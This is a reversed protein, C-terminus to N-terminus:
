PASLFRKSFSSGSTGQRPDVPTIGAKDLREQFEQKQKETLNDSHVLSWAKRSMIEEMDAKEAASMREYRDLAQSPYQINAFAAVRPAMGGQKEILGEHHTTAGTKPNVTDYGAEAKTLKDQERLADLDDQSIAGSRYRDILTQKTNSKGIRENVPVRKRLGPVGLEVSQGLREAFSGSPSRVVKKGTIPNTEDTAKAYEQMFGPITGRVLEGGAQAVGRSGEQGTFFRAPTEYFPVQEALGKGAAIGGEVTSDTRGKEAMGDMVRRATAALQGAELIPVHTLMKPIRHGFFMIEGPQPEKESRKDGKQYYGGFQQPHLFAYTMMALGVGGKKYARMINNAQEPTLNKVGGRIATEIAARPIGFTYNLTEGVVNVPVRTIPFIFRGAKALSKGGIGKRELSSMVDNFTDSILNRQQFRAREASNYAEMRAALQTGPETIDKGSKEYNRLVKVFARDFEAQRPYEKLAGHIRGPIGLVGGSSMEKDISKAGGFLVDLDSGGKTVQDLMARFRGSKWLAAVEAARDFGGGETTAKVSLNPALRHPIEGVLNEIPSMVMRGTAASSLKGLTSVYMLKAARGWKVALDAVKEPRSRQSDQWGRLKRQFDQKARELNVHIRETEPDLVTPGRKAKPGFDEERIRREIENIQKQYRSQIAAKTERPGQTKATQAGSAVDEARLTQKMQTKLEALQKVLESRKDAGQRGYGSIMEAVQRKTVGDLFESLVGHVDDVLQSADTLGAEFRNRAYKLAEKTIVGEPDLNGLGFLSHTSSQTSKLRAFEAAINQKITAAEDDLAKRTRQRGERRVERQIKDLAPKAQAKTLDAELQAIRKQQTAIQERIEPTPEKGTKAKYRNLMSVLDFDQNITLKQSALSRGKETGSKKVAETIKDFSNEVSELDARHQALVEPNTEKEIADLLGAHENKLQQLRLVMGATQEDDLARPNALVQDALREAKQDLSKEKANILTTRWGKREPTPLEPLDLEARDAALQDKKASTTSQPPETKLESPREGVAETPPTEVKAPESSKRGLGRVFGEGMKQWAAGQIEKQEALPLQKTIKGAEDALRHAEAMKASDQTQNAEAYLRDSEATLADHRQRLTQGAGKTQPEVGGVYKKALDPYDALVNAPVSKGEDVAQRVLEKRLWQDTRNVGERTLSLGLRRREATFEEQTMQWPEKVGGSQAPPEPASQSVVFGDRKNGYTPKSNSFAADEVKVISGDSKRFSVSSAKIGGLDTPNLPEADSGITKLIKDKYDSSLFRRVTAHTEPGNPSQAGRVLEESAPKAVESQPLPPSVIRTDVKPRATLDAADFMKTSGDALKVKIRGFSSGAVVGDQGNATVEKGIYNTAKRKAAADQEKGTAFDPHLRRKEAAAQMARGKRVNADQFLLSSENQRKLDADIQDFKTANEPTLEATVREGNVLMSRSNTPPAATEAKVPQAAAMPPEVQPSSAPENPPLSTETQPTVSQSVQARRAKEEPTLGLDAITKVAVNEPKFEEPYKAEGEVFTGDPARDRFNAGHAPEDVPSNALKVKPKGGQAVEDPNLLVNGQADTVPKVAAERDALRANIDPVVPARDIGLTERGQVEPTRADPEGRAGIPFAGGTLASQAIDKGTGGGAVTSAALSAAGTGRLAIQREIPSLADAGIAEGIPGMAVIPAALVGAKYTAEPGRHVNEIAQELPFAAGGGLAGARTIVGGTGAAMDAATGTWTTPRPISEEARSIAQANPDSEMQGPRMIINGLNQVFQGMKLAERAGAQGLDQRVGEGAKRATEFDRAVAAKGTTQASLTANYADKGGLAYANVADIFGQTPRAHAVYSGDPMQQVAVGQSTLPVGMEERFRQALSGYGKGMKEMMANDVEEATPKHDFKAEVHQGLLDPHNAPLKMGQMKVTEAVDQSSKALQNLKSEKDPDAPTFKIPALKQTEDVAGEGLTVSTKPTKLPAAAPQQPSPTVFKEFDDDETQPAAAQPATIQPQQAGGQPVVFKDFDDQPALKKVYDRTEPIRHMARAAQEPTKNTGSNYAALALAPDGYKDILDRMLRGHADAAKTPNFRDDQGKQVRLGYQRATDPMFQAIGAAGKPSRGPGYVFNPNFNISEHKAQNYLLDSDVGYKKGVGQYLSRYDVTPKATRGPKPAPTVFSEFDDNPDDLM